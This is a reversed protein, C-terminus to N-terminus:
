TSSSRDVANVPSASSIRPQPRVSKWCPSARVSNRLTRSRDERQGVAAQDVRARSGRGSRRGADALLLEVVRPEAFRHALAVEDAVHRVEAQRM